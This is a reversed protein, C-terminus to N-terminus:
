GRVLTRGGQSKSAFMKGGVFTNFLKSRLVWQKNPGNINGKQKITGKPVWIQRFTITNHNPSRRTHSHFHAIKKFFKDVVHGVKHCYTCHPRTKTNKLKAKVELPTYGELTFKSFSKELNVNKKKLSEVEKELNVNDCSTTKVVCDVKKALEHELIGIDNKLHENEIVLLDKEKEISAMNKKLSSYQSCKKKFEVLLEDFAFQLEGFTYSDDVENDSEENDSSAM